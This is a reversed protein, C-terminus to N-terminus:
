ILAYPTRCWDITCKEGHGSCCRDDCCVGIPCTTCSGDLCCCVQTSDDYRLGGYGCCRTARQFTYSYTLTTPVDISSACRLYVECPGDSRTGCDGTTMLTIESGVSVVGMPFLGNNEYAVECSCDSMDTAAYAVCRVDGSGVLSTITYTVSIDRDRPAWTRPTYECFAWDRVDASHTYPVVCEGKPTDVCESWQPFLCECCGAASATVCAICAVCCECLPLDCVCVTGCGIFLAGCELKKEDSCADSFALM